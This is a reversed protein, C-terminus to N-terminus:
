CQDGWFVRDEEKAEVVGTFGGEEGLDFGEERQV